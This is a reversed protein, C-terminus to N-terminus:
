FFMVNKSLIKEDSCRVVVKVYLVSCASTGFAMYQISSGLYYQLRIQDVGCGYKALEKLCYSYAIARLKPENERCQDESLASTIFGMSAFVVVM